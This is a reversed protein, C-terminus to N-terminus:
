GLILVIAFAILMLSLCLAIAAGLSLCSLLIQRTTKSM